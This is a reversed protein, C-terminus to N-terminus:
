HRTLAGILKPRSSRAVAGGSEKRAIWLDLHVHGQIIAQDVEHISPKSTATRM